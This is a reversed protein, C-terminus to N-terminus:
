KKNAKEVNIRKGNIRSNKMANMVEQAYEGPVEVFTFTNFIDIAGVLKGSLKTNSAISEVIHRPEIKDTRGINVFLRVMGGVNETYDIEERRTERRPEHQVPEADLGISMKLFAAAIDLSTIYNESGSNLSADELMKEIYSVYKSFRGESITEKLKELVNGVRTEEVDMMSPPKEQKISSKTYRQIDRLKYLERGSVFTFAKGTRGARGTRGIRHVYYEEDNPIDYNIVAEINDVDIGRAAVDTAILIDVAGKRFKTMVRDRQGQKMDGHLAEAAYGRSQLNMTLEDVRRKTNCFVMILKMNYADVIRTLVDLKAPERVEFYYQEISPVTLEKHVSKVMVADKQYKNTLDLIEKPMTASFLITQREEPVEQLITDIDERFGMNLMEDAEDLVIMKLTGLKLTRRRMHDMIRGPTGVIIQPRNKLATIQREIPQGGYVPLIKIGRKYKAVNKIEEAVQIALERTPCLILVQVGHEEHNIMEIAPIGFACTKGTGTQAQGIVDRGEMIHPISKAQIPMAEEFGMEAIAKQVEKSLSLDKFNMNEM